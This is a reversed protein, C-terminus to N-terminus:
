KMFLLPVLLHRSQPLFDNMDRDRCRQTEITYVNVLTRLIADTTGVFLMVAAYCMFLSTFFSEHCELILKKNRFNKTIHYIYRGIIGLGM